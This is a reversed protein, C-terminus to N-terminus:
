GVVLSTERKKPFKETVTASKDVTSDTDSVPDRLKTVLSSSKATDCTTESNRQPKSFLGRKVQNQM